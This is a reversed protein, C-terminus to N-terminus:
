PPNSAMLQEFRGSRILAVAGKETARVFCTRGMALPGTSPHMVTGEEVFPALEKLCIRPGVAERERLMVWMSVYGASRAKRIVAKANKKSQDEIQGHQDVYVTWSPVSQTQDSAAFTPALALAAFVWAISLNKM